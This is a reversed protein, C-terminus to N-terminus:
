QVGKHCDVVADFRPGGSVGNTDQNLAWVMVGGVEPLHKECSQKVDDKSVWTFFYNQDAAEIITTSGGGPAESSDEGTPAFSMWASHAAQGLVTMEIQANFVM